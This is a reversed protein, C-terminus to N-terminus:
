LVVEGDDNGPEVRCDMTVNLKRLGYHQEKGFRRM